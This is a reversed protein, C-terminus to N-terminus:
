LDLELQSGQVVVVEDGVAVKIGECPWVAHFKEIISKDVVISTFKKLKACACKM